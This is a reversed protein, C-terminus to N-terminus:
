LDHAVVVPNQDRDVRDLVVKQVEMVFVDTDKKIEYVNMIEKRNVALGKVFLKCLNTM